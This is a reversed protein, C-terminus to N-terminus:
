SAARASCATTNATPATISHPIGAKLPAMSVGSALLGTYLVASLVLLAGEPRSLTHKGFFALLCVLSIGIMVPLDRQLIERDVILSSEAALSALALIALVNYLSSGMLNGIAVDREGRWTAILTTALEPLSTGIALVTLGIVTETVGISRALRISSELLWEAGIFLLIIGIVLLTLQRALEKFRHQKLGRPPIGTATKGFEAIYARRTARSERRGLDIRILTYVLGVALLMLGDLGSLAGDLSLGLLMLSSGLIVPLDFRLSLSHLSLPYLLASMGLIFSLNFINTGVINGVVLETRAESAATLAIALEPASTGLAVVALGIIIPRMGSLAALRTAARLLIEAGGLLLALGLVWLASTHM